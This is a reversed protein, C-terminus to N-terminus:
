DFPTACPRFRRSKKKYNRILTQDVNNESWYAVQCALGLLRRTIKNVLPFHVEQYSNSTRVMTEMNEESMPRLFDDGLYYGRATMRVLAASYCWQHIINGPGFPTIIPSLPSTPVRFNGIPILGSPCFRKKNDPFTPFADDSADDAM